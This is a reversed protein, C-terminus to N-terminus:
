FLIFVIEFKIKEEKTLLFDHIDIEESNVYHTPILMGNIITQRLQLDFIQIFM